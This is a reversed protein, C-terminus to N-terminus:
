RNLAEVPKKLAIINPCAAAIRLTTEATVNMGTRGPVNYM